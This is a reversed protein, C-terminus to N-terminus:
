MLCYAQAKCAKDRKSLRVVRHIWIEFNHCVLQKLYLSFTYRIEFCQILGNSLRVYKRESSDSNIENSRTNMARKENSPLM